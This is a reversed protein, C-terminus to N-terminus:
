TNTTRPPPASSYSSTPVARSRVLWFFDDAPTHRIAFLEAIKFDTTTCACKRRVYARSRTELGTRRISDLNYGGTGHYVIM